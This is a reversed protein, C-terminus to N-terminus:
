VRRSSLGVEQLVREQPFDAQDPDLGMERAKLRIALSTTVADLRGLYIYDMTLYPIKECLRAMYEEAPMNAKEGRGIWNGFRGESVGLFDCMQRKNKKLEAMIAILRKAVAQQMPTEMGRVKGLLALPTAFPFRIRSTPKRNLHM